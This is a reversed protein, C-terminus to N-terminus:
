SNYKQHKSFFEQGRSLFIKLESIYYRAILVFGSIPCRKHVPHCNLFLLQNESCLQDYAGILERNMMLIKRMKDPELIVM